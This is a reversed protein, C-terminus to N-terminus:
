EQDVAILRNDVQGEEQKRQNFKAQEFIPNCRKVFYAEFKKRVIDYKRIQAETLKLSTLIDDAEDGMAYILTNIQSTEEKM